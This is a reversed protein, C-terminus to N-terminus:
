EAGLHEEAADGAEGQDAEREVGLQLPAKFRALQADVLADGVQYQCANEDEGGQDGGAGAGAAAAQRYQGGEGGEGTSKDCAFLDPVFEEGGRHRGAGDREFEHFVGGQPV